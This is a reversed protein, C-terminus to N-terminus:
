FLDFALAAVSSVVLLMLPFICGCPLVICCGRSKM